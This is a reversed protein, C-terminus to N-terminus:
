LNNGPPKRVVSLILFGLLLVMTIRNLAMLARFLTPRYEFEVRNKGAGLLVGNLILLSASDSEVESYSRNAQDVLRVLQDQARPSMQSNRLFDKVMDFHDPAVYAESLYDFGPGIRNLFEDENKCSGAVRHVMTLRGMPGPNEYLRYGETKMIEKAGRDTPSDDPGCLVYRAGMMERVHPIDTLLSFRFQDYPQPTLQNYFSKLRYYSANMAWLRHSLAKDRFDIRYDTADIKYVFSQLVRHSLLNIPTNFGSQSLFFGRVPIAMAAISVFLGASMVDKYRAVRIIRGLIFLIPALALMSFGIRSPGYRYQFLEWLIIGAFILVLIAQLILRANRRERYQELNQALLSYGFGSLFSVGIVFLVLHRGAQRIRNVLPLHFNVYALGLNTGFGSLLGYLAIAGFAVVLMRPFSDLRRFYIGALLTGLVGLPGVYPSGVIAIWTPRVLIGIAQNLTLQYLNFHDWPIPAHGIVAASAGIHRIMDGTAISM